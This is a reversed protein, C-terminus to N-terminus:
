GINWPACRETHEKEANLLLSEFRAFALSRHLRARNRSSPISVKINDFGEDEAM